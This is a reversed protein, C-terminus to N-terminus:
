KEFDMLYFQFLFIEMSVYIMNFGESVLIPARLTSTAMFGLTIDLRYYCSNEIKEAIEIM